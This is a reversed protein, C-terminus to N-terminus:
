GGATLLALLLTVTIVSVLTSVFVVSSTRDVYIGYRQALVFVTAAAPLAADLMLIKTATRDLELVRAAMFWVLLPHVVLKLGVLLAVEDPGRWAGQGVLSAGLAFLACPLAAAGLLEAFSRLSVPLSIGGISLLAGAATSLLLPNRAIGGVVTLAVARGSRARGSGTELLAVAPSVTVLMDSVVILVAPLTAARGFAAFLLPLGMYGVNGFAATLGQLGLIALPYGWVLRGALMAMAFVTLGGAHYAALLRWDFLELIPVQAVKVFLLAPLSFWYVFGNLGDITTDGLLRWHRAGYGSFVLAFIPLAITTVADV